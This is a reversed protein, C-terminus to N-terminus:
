PAQVRGNQPLYFVVCDIPATETVTKSETVRAVVIWPAWEEKWGQLVLSAVAVYSIRYATRTALLQVTRMICVAVDQRRKVMAHKGHTM